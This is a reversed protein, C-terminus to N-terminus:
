RKSRRAKPLALPRMISALALAAVKRGVEEGAENAFRYHVGGLTRSYSVQWEDFSPL